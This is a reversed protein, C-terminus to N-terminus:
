AKLTVRKSTCWTLIRWLLACLLGSKMGGGQKYLCGSHHQRHSDSTHQERLPRPVREPGLLGGKTGSLKHTAQKRSPVLNRKCHSQKLSCGLRRKIRRYVTSSCTKTPTITLGPACRKGGAVMKSSAPTTQSSTDGKRTIRPVELQKQPAM